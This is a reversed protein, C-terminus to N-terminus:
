TGSSVLAVLVAFAAYLSAFTVFIAVSSRRYLAGVGIALSILWWLRFLDIAGLLSAVFSGEDLTPVFVGLSAGPPRVGTPEVGLAIMGASFLVSLTSVVGSHAVVAFVQRFTGQGGMLTTFITMLIGAIITTVVPGLVLIVCAYIPGLYRIFTRLGTLQQETVTGGGAQIARIQQTVIADQLAPSSMMVYFAAASLGLTLALVGLWRPHDAVARYTAGPELLVGVVRAPLGPGGTGSRGEQASVDDTM